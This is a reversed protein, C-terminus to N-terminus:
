CKEHAGAKSRSEHSVDTEEHLPEGRRRPAPARPARRDTLHLLLCYSTVRRTDSLAGPAGPARRSRRANLSEMSPQQDSDGSAPMAAATHVAICVCSYRSRCRRPSHASSCANGDHQMLSRLAKKTSAAMNKARPSAADDSPVGSSMSSSCSQMGHM